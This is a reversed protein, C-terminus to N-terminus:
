RRRQFGRRWRKHCGSLGARDVIGCSGRERYQVLDSTEILHWVPGLDPQDKGRSLQLYFVKFEGDMFCPIVDGVAADKPSYFISSM